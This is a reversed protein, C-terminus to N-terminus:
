LALRMENNAVFGMSEYLPRGADSAHLYLFRLGSARGWDIMERVLRRALGRRQYEPETFMNVIWARQPRPDM